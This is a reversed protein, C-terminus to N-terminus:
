PIEEYLRNTQEIKFNCTPNQKYLNIGMTYPYKNSFGRCSCILSKTKDCLQSCIYILLKIHINNQFLFRNFVLLYVNVSIIRSVALDENYSRSIAMTTPRTLDMLKVHDVISRFYLYYVCYLFLYKLIETKINTKLWSSSNIPRCTSIAKLTLLSLFKSGSITKRLQFNHGQKM